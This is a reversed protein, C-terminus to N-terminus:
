RGSACTEVVGTDEVVRCTKTRPLIRGSVVPSGSREERTEPSPAIPVVSPRTHAPDADPFPGLSVGTVTQVVEM